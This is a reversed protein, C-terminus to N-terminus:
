AAADTPAEEDAVGSEALMAHWVDLMQQRDVGFGVRASLKRLDPLGAKTFDDKDDGDLMEAIGKRILADSDDPSTQADPNSRARQAEATAADMNNTIAGAAIADAHLQPPLERWEPGIRAAHGTTNAVYLTDDTPSRFRIPESM